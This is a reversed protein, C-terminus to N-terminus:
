LSIAIKRIFLFSLKGDDVEEEPKYLTYAKRLVNTTNLRMEDSTPPLKYDSQPSTCYEKIVLIAEHLLQM